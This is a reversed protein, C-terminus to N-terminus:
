LGCAKAFKDSDFRANDQEFIVELHGVLRALARHGGVTQDHSGFDQVAETVKAIAQAIAEYDKRTM